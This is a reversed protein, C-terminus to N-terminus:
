RMVLGITHGGDGGDEEHIPTTSSWRRKEHTLEHLLAKKSAYDRSLEEVKARGVAGDVRTGDV